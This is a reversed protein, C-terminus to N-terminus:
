WGLEPYQSDDDEDVGAVRRKIRLLLNTRQHDHHAKWMAEFLDELSPAHQKWTAATSPAQVPLVKVFLNEVYASRYTDPALSLDLFYLEKRVEQVRDETVRSHRLLWQARTALVLFGLQKAMRFTTYNARRCILVPVVASDPHERQIVSAKYLLQYLEGTKPYIHNRLSKVEFLFMHRAAPDGLWAEGANDLPGAPVATELVVAAQGGEPNTFKFGFHGSVAQLSHHVVREAARGVIGETSRTGSAWSLFRTQLLRKRAALDDFERQRGGIDAPRYVHIGRGGRTPEDVRALREERMLEDRASGLHAPDIPHTLNAWLNDSIRAEAEAWVFAVEQECLQLLAEKGKLVYYRPTRGARPLEPPFEEINM